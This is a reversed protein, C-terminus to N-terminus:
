IEIYYKFPDDLYQFLEAVRKKIDLAEARSFCPIDLPDDDFHFDRDARCLDHIFKICEDKSRLETSYDM